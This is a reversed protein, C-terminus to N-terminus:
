NGNLSTFTEIVNWDEDNFLHKNMEDRLVHDIMLRFNKYIFLGYDNQEYETIKDNDNDLTDTSFDVEMFKNVDIYDLSEDFEHPSNIMQHINSILDNKIIEENKVPEENKIIEGNKVPEENKDIKIRKVTNENNLEQSQNLIIVDENDDQNINRKTIQNSSQKNEIRFCEKSQDSQTTKPTRNFFELISRQKVVNKPM